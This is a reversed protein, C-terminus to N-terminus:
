NIHVTSYVFVYYCSQLYFMYNCLSYLFLYTHIPLQIMLIDNLVYSTFNDIILEADVQFIHRASADITIILFKALERFGSDLVIGFLYEFSEAVKMSIFDDM